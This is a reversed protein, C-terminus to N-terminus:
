LLSKLKEFPYFTEDAPTLDQDGSDPNAFGLCRMGAAKAALVGNGSDEIVVCSGAPVRLAHAAALFVDPAPKPRAISEASVLVRFCGSIGIMDLQKKIYFEPSSSAVAMVYGEDYLSHITECAGPTQPVGNERLYESKLEDFRVRAEPHAELDIGYNEKILGFFFSVTSGICHQYRDYDIEVGLEGIVQKWLRYHLPETNILVGDMDFILPKM